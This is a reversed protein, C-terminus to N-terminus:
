AKRRKPCSGAEFPREHSGTMCRGIDATQRNWPCLSSLLCSMFASGLTLGFSAEAFGSISEPQGSCALLDVVSHLQLIRLVYTM